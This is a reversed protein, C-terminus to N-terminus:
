PEFRIRRLMVRQSESISGVTVTIRGTFDDGQVQGSFRVLARDVVEQASDIDIEEDPIEDLDEDEEVFLAPCNAPTITVTFTLTSGSVSGSLDECTTSSGHQDLQIIVAGTVSSGSQVLNFVVNNDPTPPYWLGTVGTMPPNLDSPLDSPLAPPTQPAPGFSDGPEGVLQEILKGAGSPPALPRTPSSGPSDGCAALLGLIFTAAVIRPHIRLKARIRM